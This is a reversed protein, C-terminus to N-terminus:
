RVVLGKGGVRADYLVASRAQGLRPWKGSLLTPGVWTAAAVRGRLGMVLSRRVIGDQAPVTEPENEVGMVLSREVAADKAPPTEAASAIGMRLARGAKVILGDFAGGAAPYGTRLARRVQTIETGAREGDATEKLRVTKRSVGVAGPAGEGQARRGLVFQRIVTILQVGYSSLTGRVMRMTRAAVTDVTDANQGLASRGLRAGKVAQIDAAPQVIGDAARGAIVARRSVADEGNAAQGAAKRGM